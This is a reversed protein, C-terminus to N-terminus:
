KISRLFQKTLYQSLYAYTEETNDCLPTDRFSLLHHLLHIKEHDFLDILHLLSDAKIFIMRLHGERSLYHATNIKKERLEKIKEDDLLPKTKFTKKFLDNLDDAPFNIVVLCDVDFPDAWIPFHQTKVKRKFLTIM